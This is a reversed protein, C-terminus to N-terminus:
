SKSDHNKLKPLEKALYDMFGDVDANEVVLFDGHIRFGFEKAWKVINSDFSAQDLNLIRRLMDLRLRIAAKFLRRVKEIISNVESKITPSQEDVKGEVNGERTLSTEDLPIEFGLANKKFRDRVKGFINPNRYLIEKGSDLEHVLTYDDKGISFIIVHFSSNTNFRIHVQNDPVQYSKEGINILIMDSSEPVNLIRPFAFKNGSRELFEHFKEYTANHPNCTECIHMGNTQFVAYAHHCSVCTVRDLVSYVQGDFTSIFSHEGCLPKQDRNSLVRCTDNKCLTKGCVSCQVFHNKCLLHGCIGCIYCHDNCLITSKKCIECSNYHDKCLIVGCEQCTYVGCNTCFTRKCEICVHAEHLCLNEGCFACITIHDNCFWPNKVGSRKCSECEHYHDVCFVHKCTACWRINCERCIAKGCKMCHGFCMNCSFHHNNCIYAQYVPMGCSCKPPIFQNNFFNYFLRFEFSGVPSIVVCTYYFDVPLNIAAAGVVEYHANVKYLNEYETKKFAHEKEIANSDTDADDNEKVKSNVKTARKEPVTRTESALQEYYADLIALEKQLQVQLRDEVLQMQGKIDENLKIVAQDVLRRIEEDSIETMEGPVPMADVLDFHDLDFYTKLEDVCQNVLEKMAEPENELNMLPIISRHIITLTEVSNIEIKVLFCLFPIYGIHHNMATISGNKIFSGGPDNSKAVLQAIGDHFAKEPEFTFPIFAKAIHGNQQITGIIKGLIPSNFTVLESAPYKLHTKRDFAYTAFVSSTEAEKIELLGNKQEVHYGSLEYYRSFLRMLDERVKTKSARMDNVPTDDGHPAGSANTAETM